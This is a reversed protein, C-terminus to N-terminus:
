SIKEIEQLLIKLGHEAAKLRVQTRNGTFNQTETHTSIIKDNFDIIINGKVDVSNLSSQFDLVKKSTIFAFGFCVMGVPKLQTGGSPGAIGTISVSVSSGANKLCGIAMEKAVQESVAGHAVLTQNAVNVNREKSENSYTIWSQEFYSSSGAIATIFSSLLGGTCSEVCSVTMKKVVLLEGIKQALAECAIFKKEVFGM